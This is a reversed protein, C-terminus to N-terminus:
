KLTSKLTTYASYTSRLIMMLCEFNLKAVGGASLILTKKAIILMLLVTKQNEVNFHEWKCTYLAKEFNNCADILRQGALCGMFVQLITYPLQPYTNELGGLLEATISFTMISFELAVTPRLEQDVKHLLNINITHLKIIDRLRVRIFENMIEKKIDIVYIKNRIGHKNVNYFNLSDQWVNELEESLALMQCETYGVIVLVYVAISVLTYIGFAISSINIVTAIEFNPSEFM